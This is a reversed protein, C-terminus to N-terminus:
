PGVDERMGLLAPPPGLVEKALWAARLGSRSRLVAGLAHQSVPQPESLAPPPKRPAREEESVPPFRGVRAAPTAERRRREAQVVDRRLENPRLQRAPEQEGQRRRLADLIRRIMDGNEM